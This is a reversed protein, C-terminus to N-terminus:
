EGKKIDPNDWCNGIVEITSMDFYEWQYGGDEDFEITYVGDLMGGPGYDMKASVIDGEFIRKWNKDYKGTFQGVTVPDVPIACGDIIGTEPNICPHKYDTGEDYPLIFRFVGAEIMSGYIWVGHKLSKGRFLTERM